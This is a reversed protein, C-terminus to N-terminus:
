TSLSHAGLPGVLPWWWPWGAYCCPTCLHRRCNKLPNEAAVAMSCVLATSVNLLVSGVHLAECVCGGLISSVFSGASLGHGPM